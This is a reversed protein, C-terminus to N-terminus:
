QKFIIPLIMPSRGVAKFFFNRLPRRIQARLEAFDTEAALDINEITELLIKKAEDTLKEAEGTYIFGRTIMYPDTTLRGTNKDVSMVVICMGEESLTIRDRLVDSDSDGIGLGDVLLEGSQVNGTKLCSKQSLEVVNGIEPIVINFPDMGMREALNAHLKLHRYEGHVPIFFEPRILSHILKIEEQCAHGSTHVNENYVRAGLKYLNNIVRNVMSENGPIPFSSMIVTDDETIELKNFSGSALRSLAAVPEGQAGTCLILVEKPFMKKAKDIDIFLDKPFNFLGIRNGADINNIMSRGVTVVKRNFKVALDLIQQVRYINSSFTAVFLRRDTNDEFIDQLHKGISRETATYGQREINTSEALLLKVGKKGIEAMRPLDIMKGDIPENDIKFDGTHFVIGVPTTISLAFAGAISHNVYVFEVKFCGLTIEQGAEVTNLHATVHKERIKNELIANTLASAYIPANIKQLVYPIAGIHDEHGHTIVIGRIRDRNQELYSFDPIVADIGPKDEGPFSLGADIVIIDNNYELVTMNKGIEGVGGLFMIKLRNNNRHSQTTILQKHETEVKQNAAAAKARRQLTKENPKGANYTRNDSIKRARMGGLGVHEAATTASPTTPTHAPAATTSTQFPTASGEEKHGFNTKPPRGRRAPKQAPLTQTKTEARNQVPQETQNPNQATTQKKPRGRRVQNKEQPALPLIPHRMTRERMKRATQGISSLDAYDKEM